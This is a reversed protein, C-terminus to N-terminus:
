SMKGKVNRSDPGDARNEKYDKRGAWDGEGKLQNPLTRPPM